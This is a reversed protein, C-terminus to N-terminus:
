KSDEYVYIGTEVLKEYVYWTSFNDIINYQDDPYQTTGRKYYYGEYRRLEGSYFLSIYIRSAHKVGTYKGKIANNYIDNTKLFHVISRFIEDAREASNVHIDWHMTPRGIYVKTKTIEGYNDKLETNFSAISEDKVTVRPTCWRLNLTIVAVIISLMLLMVLSVYVNKRKM